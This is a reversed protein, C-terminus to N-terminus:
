AARVRKRLKMILFVGGVAGVGGLVFFVWTFNGGGKKANEGGQNEDEVPTDSGSYGDKEVGILVYKKGNYKIVYDDVKYEPNINSINTTINLPFYTQYGKFVSGGIAGSPYISFIAGEKDPVVGMIYINDRNGIASMDEFYFSNGDTSIEQLIVMDFKKSEEAANIADNLLTNDIVTFTNDAPMIVFEIKTENGAADKAVFLYHGFGIVESTQDSTYTNERILKNNRYGVVEIRGKDDRFTIRIRGNGQYIAGDELEVVEEEDITRAIMVPKKKDVRIAVSYKYAEKEIVNVKDRVRYMIQVVHAEGEAAAYALELEGEYVSWESPERQDIIVKYEYQVINTIDSAGKLRFYINNENVDVSLAGAYDEVKVGDYSIEIEGNIPDVTDMIAYVFRLEKVNNSSDAARLVVEYKLYEQGKLEALM